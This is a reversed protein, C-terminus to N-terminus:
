LREGAHYSSRVLPGSQVAKFGLAVALQGWREFEAPDAYRVVPHHRPSPRLYQGITVRGCGHARLDRLTREIEEGSEGLGLMLGSKAELGAARAQALVQLSREYRAQPRVEPYLREATEINHNLVDPRAAFVIGLAEPDGCFDPILVEIGIGPIRERLQRITEAFAAAGGDPLDDRTVSTVVAFRLGMAAAAEAVRHPEEPDLPQPRGSGV